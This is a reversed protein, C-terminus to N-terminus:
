GCAPYSKVAALTSLVVEDPNEGLILYFTKPIPGIVYAGEPSYIRTEGTIRIKGKMYTYGIEENNYYLTLIFPESGVIKIYAGGPLEGFNIERCKCKQTASFGCKNISEILKYFFDQARKLNNEQIRTESSLTGYKYCPYEIISNKIWSILQTPTRPPYFEYFKKDGSILLRDSQGTGFWARNDIFKIYYVEGKKLVGNDKEDFCINDGQSIAQLYNWMSDQVKKVVEGKVNYKEMYDKLKDIKIDEKPQFTYCPYIIDTYPVASLISESLRGGLDWQGQGYMWWCTGMLQGIKKTDAKDKAIQERCTSPWIEIVNEKMVNTAWCTYEKIGVGGLDNYSDMCGKFLLLVIILFATLLLIKALTEFEMKGSHM